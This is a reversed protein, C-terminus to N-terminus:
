AFKGSQFEYNHHYGVYDEPADIPYGSVYELKGVGTIHKSVLLENIRDSIRLTRFDKEFSNNCYIDIQVEQNAVMYNKNPQRRGAYIYIRCIPNKILDDSKATTCIHNDRIKWLESEQKDLINQLANDLPDNQNIKLDKPPYYLLRLLTEDYRFIKIIDILNDYMGM